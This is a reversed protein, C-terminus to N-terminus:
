AADKQMLSEARAKARLYEPTPPRKEGQRKEVDDATAIFEPSLACMRAAFEAFTKPNLTRPGWGLAARIRDAEAVREGHRDAYFAGWFRLDRMRQTNQPRDELEADVYHWADEAALIWVHLLWVDDWWFPFYDTFIRGSAARWRETVIAYSAARKEDTKWWFVGDPKREVAEAIKQDWGETLVLIDDCLSCYVDAPAKAAMANVMEGLSSTRPFVMMCIPGGRLSPTILLKGMGITEPDDADAGIVYVVQHVPNGEGDFAQFKQLRRLTAFLQEPRGRSPICVTIKLRWRELSLFGPPSM